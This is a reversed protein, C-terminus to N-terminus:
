LYVKVCFSTLLTASSARRYSRGNVQKMMVGPKNTRSCPTASDQNDKGNGSSANVIALDVLLFKSTSSVSSHIFGSPRPEIQWRVLSWILIMGHLKGSGDVRTNNSSYIQLGKEFQELSRLVMISFINEM